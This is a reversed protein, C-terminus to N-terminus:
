KAHQVLYKFIAWLTGTLVAAAAVASVVPTFTKEIWVMLSRKESQTTLRTIEAQQEEIRTRLRTREDDARTQIHLKLERGLETIQLSLKGNEERMEERMREFAAVHEDRQRALQAEISAVRTELSTLRNEM